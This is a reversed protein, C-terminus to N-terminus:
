LRRFPVFKDLAMPIARKIVMFLYQCDRAKSLNIPCLFPAIDDGRLMRVVILPLRNFLTDRNRMVSDDNDSSVGALSGSIALALM